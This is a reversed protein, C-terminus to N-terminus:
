LPMTPHCFIKDHVISAREADPKGTLILGLSEPVIQGFQVAAGNAPVERRV